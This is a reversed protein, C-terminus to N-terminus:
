KSGAFLSSIFSLSPKWQNVDRTSSPDTTDKEAYAHSESLEEEPGGVAYAAEIEDPLM